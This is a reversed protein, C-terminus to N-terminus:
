VGRVIEDRGIEVLWVIPIKCSLWPIRIQHWLQQPDIPIQYWM